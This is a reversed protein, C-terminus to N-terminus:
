TSAPSLQEVYWRLASKASGDSRIMKGGRNRNRIEGLSRGLRKATPLHKGPVAIAELAERLTPCAGPKTELFDIAEKATLGSTKILEKQLEEWGEILGYEFTTQVDSENELEERTLAPDPLGLWVITGRVLASWEEFSGWADLGMNPKGAAIYAQLINLTAGLLELRNAKVSQLLDKYKFSSRLQPKEEDCQLRIHLCRQATDPALTMNNGTVFWTATNELTMMQNKGLKRDGFTRGTILANINQGGFTSVVNDILVMSPAGLLTSSIRKREEEENAAQTTITPMAGTAILSIIEVLKTKGVRPSNAQIVVLPINGDHAFRSVVSLLAALWASKHAEDAFPFDCVMDLIFRAQKRADEVDCDDYVHVTSVGTGKFFARAEEVYGPEVHVTGKESLIPFPTVARLPRVHNWSGREVIAKALDMTPRKTKWAQDKKSYAVCHGYKSLMERMRSPSVPLLKPEGREDTEVCVLAGDKQFLTPDKSVALMAREVQEHDAADLDIDSPRPQSPSTLTATVSWSRKGAQSTRPRVPVTAVAPPKNPVIPPPAVVVTREEQVPKVKETPPPAVFPPEDDDLILPLFGDEDDQSSVTSPEIYIGTTTEPAQDESPADDKRPADEM